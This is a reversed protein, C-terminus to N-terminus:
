DLGAPPVNAAPTPVIDPNTYTPSVGLVAVYRAVTFKLKCRAISRFHYVEIASNAGMAHASSQVCTSHLNSHQHRNDALM